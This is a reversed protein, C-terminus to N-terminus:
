PRLDAEQTKFTVIGPDGTALKLAPLLVLFFIGRTM